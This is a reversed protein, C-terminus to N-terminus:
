PIEVARFFRGSNTLSVDDVRVLGNTLVLPNSLLTWSGLPLALNATAYVRIQPVRLPSIPTGDANALFLPLMGGAAPGPTLFLLPAYLEHTYSIVNPTYINTVAPTIANGSGALYYDLPISSYYIFGAGLPYSFCAIQNTAVSLIARANTPLAATPLYGHASNSGGDLTTDDLIGFPGATVLTTAPQVLDLNAGLSRVTGLGPTGLLFPNPSPSGASRDHVILRGGARVWTEIDPLRGALETSIGGNSSENIMLLRLGSFDQTAIDGIHLPVLGAALIPGELGTSGPNVDTFYGAVPQDGTGVTLVLELIGSTGSGGFAGETSSLDADLTTIEGGIVFPNGAAATVASRLTPNLPISVDRYADGPVLTRAGYAPGDGLDIYINTLGSGGAQVTAAPTTVEHLQYTETGTPCYVGYTHARLEAHTVPAALPPINFVFWNHFHRNAGGDNGVFHNFSGPSHIGADNYWGRDSATIVVDTSPLVTLTANSSVTVGCLNSAVISYLGGSNLQAVFTLNTFTEGPLNGGNKRWQYSLPASGTVSASYTVTEGVVATRNTLGAVIVPPHQGTWLLANVMLQSGDTAADWFDNRADSSPPFFNLGVLRGPSAQKAGVLPQGNNWSAVLTAGNTIAISSNHYSSSGGDFSAVNYLLPHQPLDKVLSLGGPSAQSDTSFPLYGGTKLRGKIGLTSVDYYAFTAVVVGGGQDVYDALVDGMAVDNNFSNDSFVLVSRYRSLDSLTPVPGTSVPIIDVDLIEGAGLIKNHVDERWAANGEAALVAFRVPAFVDYGRWTGSSDDVIWVRDNCYSLSLGSSFSTGAGALTLQALRNGSTDWISLIQNGNYTLWFNSAAAIRVNQLDNNEGPVTGFGQLAVSGLYTGANDWRSVTGNEMAIYETGAGNLVVSAQIDISGGILSVGSNTFVGPSVQRYIIQSSYARAFLTGDASTFVSRFDLGPAYTNLLVGSADYRALRNGSPGGGSCSWYNIGDFALGVTTSGAGDTFTTDAVRNTPFPCGPPPAPPTTIPVLISTSASCGGANFVTLNLTVYGAAGATYTITQLNTASTIAGNAITWAYAPQAAPGSAQNGASNAVATPPTPTIVPVDPQNV